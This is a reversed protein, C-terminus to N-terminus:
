KVTIETSPLSLHGVNDFYVLVVKEGKVPGYGTTQVHCRGQAFLFATKAVLDVPAWSVAQAGGKKYAAADYALVGAVNKPPTAAFTVTTNQGSSRPGVFSSNTITAGTPTAVVIKMDRDPVMAFKAHFFEKGKSDALALKADTSAVRALGPALLEIKLAKGNLKWPLADLKDTRDVGQNGHTALQSILIGGHQDITANDPTLPWSQVTPMACPGAIAPAATAALVALVVLKM